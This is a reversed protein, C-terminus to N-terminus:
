RKAGPQTPPAAAAVDPQSANRAHGWNSGALDLFWRLIPPMKSAPIVASLLAAVSSVVAWALLPIALTEDEM